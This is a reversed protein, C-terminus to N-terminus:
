LLALPYELGKGLFPSAATHNEVTRQRGLFVPLDVAPPCGRFNRGRSSASSTRSAGATKLTVLRASLLAGPLPESRRAMVSELAVAPGLSIWMREGPM